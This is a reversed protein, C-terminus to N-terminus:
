VICCGLGHRAGTLNQHQGDQEAAQAWTLSLSLPLAVVSGGSSRLARCPLELPILVLVSIPPKLPANCPPTEMDQLEKEKERRVKSHPCKWDGLAM